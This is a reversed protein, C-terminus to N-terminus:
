RAEPKILNIITTVLENSEVPKAIHAQFGARRSLAAANRQVVALGQSLVTKDEPLERMLNLTVHLLEKQREIETSAEARVKAEHRIKRYAWFIFAL